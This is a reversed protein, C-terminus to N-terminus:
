NPREALKLLSSLNAEAAELESHGLNWGLTEAAQKAERVRAHAQEIRQELGTTDMSLLSDVQVPHWTVPPDPHRHAAEFAKIKAWVRASEVSAEVAEDYTKFWLESKQGDVSLRVTKEIEHGDPAPVVATFIDHDGSPDTFRYRGNDGKEIVWGAPVDDAASVGHCGTMLM